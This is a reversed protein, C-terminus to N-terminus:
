IKGWESASLKDVLNETLIPDVDLEDLVEKLVGQRAAGALAAFLRARCWRFLGSVVMGSAVEQMALRKRAAWQATARTSRAIRELDSYVGSTKM